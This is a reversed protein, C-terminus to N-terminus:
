CRNGRHGSSYCATQHAPPLAYKAVPYLWLSLLSPLFYVVGCMYQLFGSIKTPSAAYYVVLVTGRTTTGRTAGPQGQNATQSWPGM